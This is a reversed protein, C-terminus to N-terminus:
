VRAAHTAGTMWVWEGKGWVWGCEVWAGTTTSAALSGDALSWARARPAREYSRTMVWKFAGWRRDTCM